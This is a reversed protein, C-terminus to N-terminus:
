KKEEGTALAAPIVAVGPHMTAIRHDDDMELGHGMTANALAANPMSTRFNYGIISSQTNGGLEKITDVIIRSSKLKSGGLVCGLHDLIFYKTFYIVKEPLDAFKTNTVFNSLESAITNKM